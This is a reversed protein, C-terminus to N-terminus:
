SPLPISYIGTFTIKSLVFVGIEVLSLYFICELYFKISFIIIRSTHFIYIINIKVKAITMNVTVAPSLIRTFPLMLLFIFFLDINFNLRDDNIGTSAAAIIIMTGCATCAAL